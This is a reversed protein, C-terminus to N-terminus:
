LGEGSVPFSRFLYTIDISTQGSTDISARIVIEDHQDHDQASERLLALVSAEVLVLRAAHFADASM